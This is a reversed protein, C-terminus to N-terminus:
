PQGIVSIPLRRTHAIVLIFVLLVYVAGHRAATAGGSITVANVIVPPETITAPSSTFQSASLGTRQGASTMM